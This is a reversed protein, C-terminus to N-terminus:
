IAPSDPGAHRTIKLRAVRPGDMEEVRLECAGMTLADGAKPFGGLKQTMWGSATAVSEELQTEGIIKEL